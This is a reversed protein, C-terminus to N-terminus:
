WRILFKELANSSSLISHVSPISLSCQAHTDAPKLQEFSAAEITECKVLVDENCQGRM